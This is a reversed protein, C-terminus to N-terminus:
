RGSAMEEEAQLCAAIRRVTGQIKEEPLSSYNVVFTGAADEPAPIEQYWSALSRIRVGEKKLREAFREPAEKLCLKLLFHLGANEESVEAMGPPLVRDIEALLLDRRRRCDQRMRNIHKEFYGEGIFAALTFQELTPVTCAYFYLKERFLRMLAEPLVMYSIRITSALSRTFTNMYIVRGWPDMGFLPPVPKGSLRFESDYDDELIYREPAAGAWDLIEMRRNVPMTIGTPFHHSPTVHVVQAGAPELERALLGAKDLGILCHKLHWAEFIQNIKRYGPDEGAYTLDPGLLQILLSYLYESGAGVVIQEPDTQLGRFEALHKAIARRLAATGQAPPNILLEERSGSLVARSLRAWTAFPFTSASAQYGSLDAYVEPEEEPEKTKPPEPTKPSEATSGPRRVLWSKTREGLDAVYYGQRPRSEIYGEMQLQAYASEVTIVSINLNKALMRKSPLKEGAKLDGSLIDERIRRYVYQYLPERGVNEFSYTRM